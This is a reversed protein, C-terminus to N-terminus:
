ISQDIQNESDGPDSYKFARIHTHIRTNLVYVCVISIHVIYVFM